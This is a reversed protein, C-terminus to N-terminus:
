SFINKFNAERFPSSFYKCCNIVNREAPLTRVCFEAKNPRRLIPLLFICISLRWLEVLKCSFHMYSNSISFFSSNSKACAILPKPTARRNSHPLLQLEESMKIRQLTTPKESPAKGGKTPKRRRHRRSFEYFKGRGVLRCKACFYRWTISDRSNNIQVSSIM